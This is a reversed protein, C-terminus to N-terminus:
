WVGLPSDYVQRNETYATLDDVGGFILDQLEGITYEILREHM